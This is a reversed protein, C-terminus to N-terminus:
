LQLNFFVFIGQRPVGYKTRFCSRVIGIHKIILSDSYVVDSTESLQKPKLQEHINLGIKTSKNFNTFVVNLHGSRLSEMKLKNDNFVVM